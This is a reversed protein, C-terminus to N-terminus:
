LKLIYSLNISFPTLQKLVDIELFDNLLYICISIEEFICSPLSSGSSHPKARKSFRGQKAENSNKLFLLRGLIVSLCKVTSLPSDDITLVIRNLLM